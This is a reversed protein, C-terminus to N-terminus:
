AACHGLLTSVGRGHLPRVDPETFPDRYLVDMLTEFKKNIIFLCLVCSFVVSDCVQESLSVGRLLFSCRSRDCPEPLTHGGLGVFMHLSGVFVSLNECLIMLDVHSHVLELFFVNASCVCVCVCKICSCTSVIVVVVAMTIDFMSLLDLKFHPKLSCLWCM